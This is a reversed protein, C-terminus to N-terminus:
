VEYHGITVKELDLGLRQMRDIERRVNEDPRREKTPNVHRIALVGLINLTLNM